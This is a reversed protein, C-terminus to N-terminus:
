LRRGVAAYLGDDEPDLAATIGPEPRWRSTTVLGPEVLEYGSFMAMVEARGRPFVTDETSRMTAIIEDGHVSDFDDTLHTLALYSGPVVADRYRGCMGIPDASHPIYHGLAVALVGIPRDFDLLRLAAPASLVDDPNTVDAFVMTTRADGALLLQSHSVTAHEYDVYVVRSDPAVRQATEHVNGVTPIGSGLDLFQRIGADVMFRVVRQLFARNRRAIDTLNPQVGLLKEAFDRDSQFNHAGGLLCDYIRAISPKNTDVESPVWTAASEDTM